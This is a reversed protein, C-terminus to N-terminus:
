NNDNKFNESKLLLRDEIKIFDVKEPIVSELVALQSTKINKLAEENDKYNNNLSSVVLSLNAEIFKDINNQTKIEKFAWIVCLLSVGIM